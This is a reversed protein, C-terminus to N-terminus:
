ELAAFEGWIKKATKNYVDRAEEPTNFSGLYERKGCVSIKTYWKKQRRDDCFVGKYNCSKKDKDALRNAKNQNQTCLRLNCRRNDLKNRNIHDVEVGDPANTIYRHMFICKQKGNISYRHIAYGRDTCRWKIKSLWEFDENDVFACKGRTLSISKTM